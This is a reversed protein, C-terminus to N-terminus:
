SCSGTTETPMSFHLIQIQYKHLEPEWAAPQNHRKHWLSNVLLCSFSQLSNTKNMEQTKQLPISDISKLKCTTWYHICVETPSFVIQETFSPSEAQAKAGWTCTIWKMHIQADPRIHLATIYHYCINLTMSPPINRFHFIQSAMSYWQMFTSVSICLV